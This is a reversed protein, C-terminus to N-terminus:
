SILMRSSLSGACSGFSDASRRGHRGDMATHHKENFLLFLEGGTPLGAGSVTVEDGLKKGKAILVIYAARSGLLEATKERVASIPTELSVSLKVRDRKARVLLSVGDAIHGELERREPEKEPAPAASHTEAEKARGAFPAAQYGPRFMLM